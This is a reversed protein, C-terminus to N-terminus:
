EVLNVGDRATVFVLEFGGEAVSPHRREGAVVVGAEEVEQPERV